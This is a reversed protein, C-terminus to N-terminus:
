KTWIMLLSHYHMVGHKIKILKQRFHDASIFSKLTRELQHTGQLHIFQDPWIKMRKMLEKLVTIQNLVILHYHSNNKNSRIKSIIKIQSM